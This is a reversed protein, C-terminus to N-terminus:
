EMSGIKQLGRLPHVEVKVVGVCVGKTGRQWVGGEHVWVLGAVEGGKVGKCM